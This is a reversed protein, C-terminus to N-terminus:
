NIENLLCLYSTMLGWLGVSRCTAYVRWLSLMCMCAITMDYFMRMSGDFWLLMFWLLGLWPTFGFTIPQLLVVQNISCVVPTFKAVVILRVDHRLGLVVLSCVCVFVAWIVWRVCYGLYFEVVIIVFVYLGRLGVYGFWWFCFPVGVVLGLLVLVFILCFAVYVCGQFLM